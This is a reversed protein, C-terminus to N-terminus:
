GHHNHGLMSTKPKFHMAMSQIFATANQELALDNKGSTKNFQCCALNMSLSATQVWPLTAFAVTGFVYKLYTQRLIPISCPKVTLIRLDRVVHMRISDWFFLFTTVSTHTQGPEKNSIQLLISPFVQDDWSPIRLEIIQLKATLRPPITKAACWSYCYHSLFPYYQQLIDNKLVSKEILIM